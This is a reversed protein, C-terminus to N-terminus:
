QRDEGRDSRDRLLHNPLLTALVVAIIAAAASILFITQFAGTVGVALAMRDHQNMGELAGGILDRMIEAGTLSAAFAPANDRLAVLLIATLIAVGIAAGLSRSFAAAATAIGIHQPPVANQVAVLGTSFQLGIGVGALTMLAAGSAIARPDILALGLVALPVVCTGALLCIKYRGTRTMITGSLLAAIPVSLTLPVLQLAAGDTGIDTMMQLRLPVLVSLSIVQAFALFLIGCCLSVTPIRFLSLPVIPEIARTQQFIFAGLLVLATAFLKLNDAEPLPVGQGVRTIGVLLATLGATLLAAGVYDIPRKVRPAPLLALANRSIFIAALALPVNIWFVWRWSLYQTLLGGALPGAISATAFTVSFYGQYRARERPAVVDAVMAQAAAFLGGGGLGQLVRAAVLMPMSTALACGVSALLFLWLAFSLTARRGFLDGLKGYIPTAVAVAVLYGSVVWALLDFGQLDASMMPLAVSVITQDLAALLIVLMSGAVIARITSASYVPTASAQVQQM